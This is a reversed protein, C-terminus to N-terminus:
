GEFSILVNACSVQGCAPLRRCAALLSSAVQRSGALGTPRDAAFHFTKSKLCGALWEIEHVGSLTRGLPTQSSPATFLYRYSNAKQEM